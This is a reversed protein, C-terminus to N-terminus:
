RWDVDKVADDIQAIVKCWTAVVMFFIKTAGAGVIVGIGFLLLYNWNM